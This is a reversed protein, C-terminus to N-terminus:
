DFLNEKAKKKRKEGGESLMKAVIERHQSQVRGLVWAALIERMVTAGYSHETIFLGDTEDSEESKPYICSGGIVCLIDTIKHKRRIEGLDVFFAEVAKNAADPSEFPKAMERYTALDSPM